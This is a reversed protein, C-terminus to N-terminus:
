KNYVEVIKNKNVAWWIQVAKVIFHILGFTPRWNFKSFYADMQIFIKGDKEFTMKPSVYSCYNIIKEEIYCRPAIKPYNNTLLIYIEFKVQTHNPDQLYGNWLKYKFKEIKEPHFFIWSNIHYEKLLKFYNNIKDIEFVMRENWQSHDPGVKTWKDSFEILLEKLKSDVKELTITGLKKENEKIIINQQAAWWLWVVRTLFHYIGYNQNWLNLNHMHDHSIM